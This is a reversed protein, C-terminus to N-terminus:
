VLSGAQRFNVCQLGDSLQQSKGRYILGTSHIRQNLQKIKQLNKLFYPQFTEAQKIEFAQIFPGNKYILDVEISNSDRYFYFEAPLGRNMRGKMCEVVVLNEFLRGSLPDRSIHDPKEIGLLFSLLGPETFYYKSSKIVRKGFNEFYPRLKYIIYSAELVSLWRKATKDDISADKALSHTNLVQGVRGALLKMFNEFLAQQKVNLIQRVDREVYTRYYNSYATFPRQQQDYVRPLFGKHIYNQFDKHKFGAKKLETMSLPLLNLLGARGALSQSVAESLSMQRSGTLVFCGNEKRDDVMVQIWSLLEPVRQIEDLILPPPFQRFFANPDEKALLRQEPDELNAYRYKKLSKALTTKGSQRPGLLVAVPYESLVQKLEKAIERAIM